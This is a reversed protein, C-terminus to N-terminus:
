CMIILVCILDCQLVIEGERPMEWGLEEGLELTGGGREQETAPAREGLGDQRGWLILFRITLTMEIFHKHM